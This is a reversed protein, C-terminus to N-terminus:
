LIVRLGYLSGTVVRQMVTSYTMILAPSIADWIAEMFPLQGQSSPRGSIMIGLLVRNLPIPIFGPLGTRHNMFHITDQRECFSPRNPPLELLRQKCSGDANFAYVGWSSTVIMGGRKLFRASWPLKSDELNCGSLEFTRVHRGSATFIHLQVMPFDTVLFEGQDSQDLFTFSGISVSADFRITDVPIFLDEFEMFDSEVVRYQPGSLQCASVCVLWFVRFVSGIRYLM